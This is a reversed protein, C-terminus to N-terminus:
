EICTAVSLSTQRRNIRVVDTRFETSPHLSMKKCVSSNGMVAGTELLDDVSDDVFILSLDPLQDCFLNGM